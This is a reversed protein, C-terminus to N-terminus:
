FFIKVYGNVLIPNVYSEFIIGIIVVLIELFLPLMNRKIGVYRRGNEWYILGYAMWYFVGQPFLATFFLGMGKIGFWLYFLKLLVGILFGVCVIVCCHMVKRMNTYSLMIIGSFLTGRNWLCQLLLEKKNWGGELLVMGLTQNMITNEPKKGKALMTILFTGLLFAIAFLIQQTTVRRKIKM